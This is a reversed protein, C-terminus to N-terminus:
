VLPLGKKDSGKIRVSLTDPLPQGIQFKLKSLTVEGQPTNLRFIMEDDGYDKNVEFEAIEIKKDALM